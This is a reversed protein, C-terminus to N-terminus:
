EISVNRVQTGPAMGRTMSLLDATLSWYVWIDVPALNDIDDRGGLFLPVEYGVCVDHALPLLAPNAGAWEAFFSKTLAADPEEVLEQNHFDTFSSPIELIEATGPEVLLVHGPQGRRLDVAFQGGLWDFGFPAIGGALEPFAEGIAAGALRGSEPTHLRYLGRGFTAGGVATMLDDFGAVPSPSWADIPVSHDTIPYAALFRDFTGVNGLLTSSPDKL